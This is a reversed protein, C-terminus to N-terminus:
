AVLRNAAAVTVILGVFLAIAIAIIGAILACTKIQEELEASKRAAEKRAALAQERAIKEM